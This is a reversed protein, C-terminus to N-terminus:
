AVDSRFRRIPWGRYDHLYRAPAIEPLPIRYAHRIYIRNGGIRDFWTRKGDASKSRQISEHHECLTLACTQVDMPEALKGFREDFLNSLSNATVTIEALARYAARFREDLRHVSVRFDANQVIDPVVYGRADPATAEARLVDFADQLGRAFAEYTRIARVLAGYESAHRVLDAHLTEERFDDDARNQQLHWLEPLAGLRRDDM